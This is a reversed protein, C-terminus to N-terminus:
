KYMIYCFDRSSVIGGKKPKGQLYVLRSDPSMSRVLQSDQTNVSDWEQLSLLTRAYILAATRVGGTVDWQKSPGHLDCVVRRTSLLVVGDTRVLLLLSWGIPRM